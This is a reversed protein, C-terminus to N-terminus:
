TMETVLEFFTLEVKSIFKFMLYISSYIGLLLAFM